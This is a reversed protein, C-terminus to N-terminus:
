KLVICAYGYFLNLYLFIFDNRRNNKAVGLGIM